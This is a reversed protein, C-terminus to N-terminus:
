SAPSAVSPTRSRSLAQSPGTRQNCLTVDRSESAGTVRGGSRVWIGRPCGSRSWVHTDGSLEHPVLACDARATPARMRETARPGACRLGADVRSLQEEVPAVIREQEASPPIPFEVTIFPKASLHAINTTIRSERMFRKSRMHHSFVILAWEPTVGTWGPIPHLSNTFAVDPPSDATSRPADRDSAPETRRQAPCRRTAPRVARVGRGLFTMQMVDNIDIRDEFVNAVRLYPRMGDGHHYKPARQRGLSVEGVQGVTSM